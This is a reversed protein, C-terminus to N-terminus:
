HEGSSLGATRILGLALAPCPNELRFYSPDYSLLRSGCNLTSDARRPLRPLFAPKTQQSAWPPRSYGATASTRPDLHRSVVKRPSDRGEGTRTPSWAKRGNRETRIGSLGDALASVTLRTARIRLTAGVDLTFSPGIPVRESGAHRRGNSELFKSHSPDPGRAM